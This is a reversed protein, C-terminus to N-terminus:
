TSNSSLRLKKKWLAFLPMDVALGASIRQPNMQYGTILALPWKKSLGFIAYAGPSVVNEFRVVNETDSSDFLRYNVINGIDIFSILVSVTSSTRRIPPMKFSMELGIPALFAPKINNNFYYTTGAGGYANIMLTKGSIRKVKYSAIPMTYKSIIGKIATADQAESVEGAVNMLTTFYSNDPLGKIGKIIEPALTFGVEAYRGERSALWADVVKTVTRKIEFKLSDSDSGPREFKIYDLLGVGSIMLQCSRSIIDSVIDRQYNRYENYDGKPTEKMLASLSAIQNKALTYNEFTESVASIAKNMNISSFELDQLSLAILMKSLYALKKRDLKNNRYVDEFNYKELNKILNSTFQLSVAIPPIKSDVFKDRESVMTKLELRLQGFASELEGEYLLSNYFIILSRLVMLGDTMKIVKAQAISNPLNFMDKRLVDKLKILDTTYINERVFRFTEPFIYTSFVKGIGKNDSEFVNKKVNELFAFVVEDTARTIVYDTLGLLIKEELTAGAPQKTLAALDTPTKSIYVEAIPLNRLSSDRRAIHKLDKFLHQSSALRGLHVAIENVQSKSLMEPFLLKQLGVLDKRFVLQDAQDKTSEAEMKDLINKLLTEPGSSPDAAPTKDNKASVAYLIEQTSIAAAVADKGSTRDNLITSYNVFTVFHHFATDVATNPLYKFRSNVWFFSNKHIFQTTYATAGQEIGTASLYDNVPAPSSQVIIVPKGTLHQIKGIWSKITQLYEERSHAVKLTKNFDGDEIVGDTFIFVAKSKTDTKPSNSVDLFIQELATHVHTFNERSDGKTEKDFKSAIKGTNNRAGKRIAQQDIVKKAFLDEGFTFTKVDVNNDLSDNSIKLLIKLLVQLNDKEDLYGISGSRDFAILYEIRDSSQALSSLTPLCFFLLLLFNYICTYNKM